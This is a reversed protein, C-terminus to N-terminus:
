GGYYELCLERKDRHFDISSYPPIMEWLVEIMDEDAEEVTTRNVYQKIKEAAEEPIEINNHKYWTIVVCECLDMEGIINNKYYYSKYSSAFKVEEVSANMKSAIYYYKARLMMTSDMDIDILKYYEPCKKITQAVLSAVELPIESDYFKEPIKTDGIKLKKKALLERCHRSVNKEEGPTSMVYECPESLKTSGTPYPPCYTMFRKLEQDYDPAELTAGNILEIEPMDSYGYNGISFNQVKSTLTLHINDLIIKRCKPRSAKEWRGYSLGTNTPMGIVPQQNEAVRMTVVSGDGKISCEEVYPQVIPQISAFHLEGELELISDEPTLKFIQNIEKM